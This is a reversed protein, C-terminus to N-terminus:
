VEGIDVPFRIHRPAPRAGASVKRKRVARRCFSQRRGTLLGPM